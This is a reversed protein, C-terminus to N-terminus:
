MIQTGANAHSLSKGASKFIKSQAPPTVETFFYGDSVVPSRLATSPTIDM